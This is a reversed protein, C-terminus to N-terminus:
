VSSNYHSLKVSDFIIQEVLENVSDKLCENWYCKFLNYKFNSLYFEPFYYIKVIDVLIHILKVVQRIASNQILKGM